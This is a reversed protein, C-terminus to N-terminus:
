QRSNPPRTSISENLVTNSPLHDHITFLYPNPLFREQVLLVVANKRHIQESSTPLWVPFGGASYHISLLSTVERQRAKYQEAPRDKTATYQSHSQLNTNWYRPARKVGGGGGRTAGAVWLKLLCSCNKENGWLSTQMSGPLWNCALQTRAYICQAM